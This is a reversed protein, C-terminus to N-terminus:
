SQYLFPYSFQASSKIGEYIKEFVRPVGAFFTPKLEVLDDRLANLDKM